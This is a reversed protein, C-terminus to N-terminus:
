RKTDENEKKELIEIAKEIKTNERNLNKVKLECNKIQADQELKRKQCDKIEFNYANIIATNEKLQRRLISAATM